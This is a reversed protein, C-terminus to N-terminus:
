TFAFRSARENLRKMYESNRDLIYKVRENFNSETEMWKQRKRLTPPKIVKSNFVSWKSEAPINGNLAILQLMLEHLRFSYMNMNVGKADECANSFARSLTDAAIGLSDPSIGKSLGNLALMELINGSQERNIKVPEQWQTAWAALSIETIHKPHIEDYYHYLKSSPLHIVKTKSNMVLGEHSWQKRNPKQHPKKPYNGVGSRSSNNEKKSNCSEVVPLISGIIAVKLTDSIFKRRNFPPKNM